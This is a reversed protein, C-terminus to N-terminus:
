NLDAWGWRDVLCQWPGDCIADPTDHATVTDVYKPETSIVNGRAQAPLNDVTATDVRTASQWVIGRPDLVFDDLFLNTSSIKWTTSGDQLTVVTQAAAPDGVPLALALDNCRSPDEWDSGLHGGGHIVGVYVGDIRM